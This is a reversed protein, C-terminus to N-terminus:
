AAKRLNFGVRAARVRRAVRLPATRYCLACGLDHAGSIRLPNDTTIREQCHTCRNTNTM